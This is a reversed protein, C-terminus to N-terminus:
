LDLREQINYDMHRREGQKRAVKQTEKSLELCGEHSIAQGVQARSCLQKQTNLENEM